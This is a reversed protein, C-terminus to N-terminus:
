KAESNRSTKRGAVGVQYFTRVASQTRVWSGRCPRIVQCCITPDPLRSEPLYRPSSM